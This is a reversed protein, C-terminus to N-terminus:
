IVPVPDYTGMPVSGNCSLLRKVTLGLGKYIGFRKVAEVSYHSCTPSYRCRIFHMTVPHIHNQYVRVASLYVRATVQKQPARTANNGCNACPVLNGQPRSFLYIVLGLPRLRPQRQDRKQQNEHRDFFADSPATRQPLSNHQQAFVVAPM